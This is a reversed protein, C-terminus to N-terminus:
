GHIMIQEKTIIATAEVFFEAIEKRIDGQMQIIKGHEENDIIVGSAKFTKKLAKLIKPWDLSLVKGSKPLRVKDPFGQVTTWSKRGNRQQVRIHVKNGGDDNTKSMDNGLDFDFDAM